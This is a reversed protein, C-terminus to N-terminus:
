SESLCDSYMVDLFNEKTRGRLDMRPSNKRSQDRLASQLGANNYKDGQVALIQKIHRYQGLSYVRELSLIKENNKRYKIGIEIEM